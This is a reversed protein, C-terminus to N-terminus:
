IIGITNQLLLIQLNEKRNRNPKFYKPDVIVAILDIHKVLLCSNKQAMVVEKAMSTVLVCKIRM